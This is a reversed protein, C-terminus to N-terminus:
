LRAAVVSRMTGPTTGRRGLYLGLLLLMPLPFFMIPSQMNSRARDVTVLFLIWFGFLLGILAAPTSIWGHPHEDLTKLVFATPLTLMIFNGPDTSIWLWQSVVLTVCLVPLLVAFDARLSRLWARALGGALIASIVNGVWRGPDSFFYGIADPLTTPPNYSSYHLVNSINQLPWDPIILLGAVGLVLTSGALWQLLQWRRVSIAWAALLAVPVISQNPKGLALALLIGAVPDHRERTAWAAGVLMLAIMTTVNGNVIPRVTFYGLVGYILYLALTPRRPKWDVLKLSLVFVLVSSLELATMWAARAVLFDSILAFPLFVIEMYLMYCDLFENEGPLAARGYVIHQVRAAVDYSYPSEGQLLQRTGVWHTLFDVGGSSISVFRYNALMLAAVVALLVICYIAKQYVQTKVHIMAEESPQIHQRLNGM